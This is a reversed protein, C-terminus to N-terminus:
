IVTNDCPSCMKTTRQENQSSPRYHDVWRVVLESGLRGGALLILLILWVLDIERRSITPMIAATATAIILMAM